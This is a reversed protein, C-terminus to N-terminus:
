KFNLYKIKKYMVIGLISLVVTAIAIIYALSGTQPLKGNVVTSDSKIDEKKNESDLKSEEKKTTSDPEKKDQEPSVSAAKKTVTVKCSAVFGGDKTTATINTNGEAVATVKGDEVKAIKENESKWIILKNTADSPTITPKLTYNSGETLTIEKKDLAISKVAITSPKTGTLNYRTVDYIIRGDSCVLKVWIAFQKNGSCQTLDIVFNKDETKVWKSEIYTPILEDIKKQFEAPKTNYEKVKNNYEEVKKEWAAYATESEKKADAIENENANNEVKEKWVALAKDYSAKLNDMEVELSDIEKKLTDLTKKGNSQISEIENYIDNPIEVAQYYVTYGETKENITIAGKGNSIIWPFSILNNKDVEVSHARVKMFPIFLMCLILLLIFVKKTKRMFNGGIVQIELLEKTYIRISINIKACVTIIHLYFFL